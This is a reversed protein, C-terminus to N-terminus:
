ISIGNLIKLPLNGVSFCYSDIRLSPACATSHAATEVTLGSCAAYSLRTHTPAPSPLVCCPKNWPKSYDWNSKQTNTRLQSKFHLGKGTWDCRLDLWKDKKRLHVSLDEYGPLNVRCRHLATEQSRGTVSCPGFSSLHAPLLLADGNWIVSQFAPQRPPARYQFPLMKGQCNTLTVKHTWVNWEEM